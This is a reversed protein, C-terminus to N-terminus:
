APLKYIERMAEAGPELAEVWDIFRNCMEKGRFVAGHQPAIVEIDLKRVMQAWLKCATSSAMYRNHFGEMHGIHDDFNEVFRYNVIAAGLDGSYLVKSIPDYVHLNGASHLFHAPIFLLECGNLDIRMGEDPVAKMRDMVSGDVGFHAVFRRWIAPMYADAETIMLWGNVSAVIDPDQHSLFLYELAAPALHEPMAAFIKSYVKHGGPDLLMGKGHHIILHQNASIMEGETFDEFFINKHGDQDYLLDAM